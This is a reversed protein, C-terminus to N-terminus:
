VLGESMPDSESGKSGATTLRIWWQVAAQRRVRRPVRVEAGESLARTVTRWEGTAVQGEVESASTWKSMPIQNTMPVQSNTM